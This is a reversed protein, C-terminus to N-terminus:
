EATKGKGAVGFIYGALAGLITAVAEGSLVEELGLLAVVVLLVVALVLSGWNAGVFPIHVRNSPEEAALDIVTVVATLEMEGIRARLVVQGPKTATLFTSAGIDPYISAGTKGASEPDLDWRIEALAPHTAPQQTAADIVDFRHPMGAPITAPGKMAMEISAAAGNEGAIDPERSVFTQVDLVTHHLGKSLAAGFADFFRGQVQKLYNFILVILGAASGFLL